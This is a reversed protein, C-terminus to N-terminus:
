DGDASLKKNSLDYIGEGSLGGPSSLANVVALVAAGIDRLRLLSGGVSGLSSGGLGEDGLGRERGDLGAGGSTETSGVRGAERREAGVRGRERGVAQVTKLTGANTGLSQVPGDVQTVDVRLRRRLVQAVGDSSADKLTDPVHLVLM